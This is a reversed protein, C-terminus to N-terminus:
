PVGSIVAIGARQNREIKYHHPPATSTTLLSCAATHAATSSASSHEVKIRTKARAERVAAHREWQWAICATVELDSINGNGSTSSGGSRAGSCMKCCETPTLGPSTAAVTLLSSSSTSSTSPSEPLLRFGAARMCPTNHLLDKGLEFNVQARATAEDALSAVAQEDSRLTAREWEAVSVSPSALRIVVSSYLYRVVELEEDKSDVDTDEEGSSSISSSSSSSSSSGGASHGRQHAADMSRRLRVIAVRRSPLSRETAVFVAARELIAAETAMVFFPESRAAGDAPQQDEAALAATAAAAAATTTGMPMKVKGHFTNDWWRQRSLEEEEVLRLLAVGAARVARISAGGEKMADRERRAEATRNMAASYEADPQLFPLPPLPPPPPPTEPASASAGASARKEVFLHPEPCHKKMVDRFDSEEFINYHHRLAIAQRGTALASPTDTAIYLPRDRRRQRKGDGDFIPLHAHIRPFLEKMVPLGVLPDGVFKTAKDGSRFHVADFSSSRARRGGRLLLLLGEEIIERAASLVASSWPLLFGGLQSGRWYYTCHHFDNAAGRIVMPFSTSPMENGMRRWKKSLVPRAASSFAGDDWLERLSSRTAAVWARVTSARHEQLTNFHWETSENAFFFVGPPDEVVPLGRLNVISSWKVLRGALRQGNAWFLASARDPRLHTHGTPEILWPLQLTRRALWALQVGTELNSLKHVLGKDHCDKSRAIRFTRVFPSGLPPVVGGSRRLLEDWERRRSALLMREEKLAEVTRTRELFAEVPLAGQSCQIHDENMNRRTVRSVGDLADRCLYGRRCNQCPNVFRSKEGTAAAPFPVMEARSQEGEMNDAWWWGEQADSSIITSFLLLVRLLTSNSM